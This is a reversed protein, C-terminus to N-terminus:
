VFMKTELHGVTKLQNLHHRYWNVGALHANLSFIDKDTELLDIISELNFLSDIPYLKEYVKEIFDYDAQYDITWRHTLSYDVMGKMTVNGIRFTEPREWIFPTTHEREFDLTAQLWAKELVHFHMIEVDNGDPFTAPHLNSVYDFADENKLFHLCVKDIVKPDILPCDSPIKIVVDADYLKAAQYHRDLLDTAHGRFCPIDKLACIAAIVDDEKATTTAVVVTGLYAAAQMREIQRLFLPEGCLPLLVKDPLRSSNRRVQMVTVVKQM